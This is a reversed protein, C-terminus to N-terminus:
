RMSWKLARSIMALYHDVSSGWPVVLLDINDRGYMWWIFNCIWNLSRSLWWSWCCMWFALWMTFIILTPLVSLLLLLLLLLPAWSCCLLHLMNSCVGFKPIHAESSQHDKITNNIIFYKIKTQSLGGCSCRQMLGIPSCDLHTAILANM